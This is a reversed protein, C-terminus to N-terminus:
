PGGRTMLFKLAVWHAPALATFLAGPYLLHQPRIRTRRQRHMAHLYLSAAGVVALGLIVKPVFLGWPAGLHDIYARLLPNLERVERGLLGALTLLYDAVSAAAYTLLAVALEWDLLCPPTTDSRVSHRM